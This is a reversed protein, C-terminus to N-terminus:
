MMWRIIFIGVVLWCMLVVAAQWGGNYDVVTVPRTNDVAVFVLSAAENNDAVSSTNDDSWFFLEHNADTSIYVGVNEDLGWGVEFNVDDLSYYFNKCGALADSCSFQVNADAAQWGGNYDVVSVPATKDVAVFVLTSAANSDGGAATNDDSWFFLEHNADTSIFIGVNQDLGWGVQYNVDDLSYYFNRCGALVDSCNADAAQWGGNYDVVTVPRTNDVAVFILISAENNDGVGSANDDSWFFLEHNADTSIYVGINSDFGWGVQYNVDDLSYYFNKCGALADSCSFQVNADGAQWGGNYDATTVPATKDVLVYVVNTDETNGAVDSSNFDLAWRGDQGFFANLDSASGSVPDGFSNNSSSDTDKRFRTVSCGSNSDSCTFTINADTNQWGLNYDAVTSPLTNDVMFNFDSANFDTDTGDSLSAIIFYNWDTVLTSHINFDWSCEAGAASDFVVSTCISSDLNLDEVLAIGTGQTQSPSYNIDLILRDNDADFVNFDITLNGDGAYSFAPFVQTDLNSNIYRIDVTPATNVSPNVRFSREAAMTNSDDGDNIETTIWYNNDAIGSIDWDWSCTMVALKDQQDCNSTATGLNLDAVILNTKGGRTTDYWMNFNLDQIGDEDRVTFKITLNGDAAFSFSPLVANFDWDDVQWVNVDPMANPKLSITMMGKTTAGTYTLTTDGYSGATAKNADFVTLGGDDGRNSEANVRAASIDALDANSVGTIPTDNDDDASGVIVIKRNPGTTSTGPITGSNDSTNDIAGTSVDYPSGSSIAGRYACIVGNQHDGSDSTTPDGQTGNYRSWFVTLATASATQPSNTVETWTGGGGDAVSIAQASTELFLLLIDNTVIGSPLVVTIAPTNGSVAGCNFFSPVEAHAYLGVFLLAILVLVIRRM